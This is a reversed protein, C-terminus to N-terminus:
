AVGVWEVRVVYTKGGHATGLAYKSRFTHLPEGEYIPTNDADLICICGWYNSQGSSLSFDVWSGDPCRAGKVRRDDYYRRPDKLTKRFREGDKDKPQIRAQVLKKWCAPLRVTVEVQNDVKKVKAGCKPCNM